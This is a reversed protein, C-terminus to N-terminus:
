IARSKPARGTADLRTTAPANALMGPPTIRAIRDGRVGIDGYAWANGTGDVIRGGSIVVDYPNNSDAQGNSAGASAQDATPSCAAAMALALSGVITVAGAKTQVYKRMPLLRRM